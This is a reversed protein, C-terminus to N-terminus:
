GRESLVCGRRWLKPQRTGDLARGGEPEQCGVTCPALAGGPRLDGQMTRQRHKPCKCSSAGGLAACAIIVRLRQRRARACGGRQPHAERARVLEANWDGRLQQLRDRLAQHAGGSRRASQRAEVEERITTLREKNMAIRAALKDITAKHLSEDPRAPRKPPRLSAADGNAAPAPAPGADGDAEAPPATEPAEAAPPPDETAMACRETQARLDSRCHEPKPSSAKSICTKCTTQVQTLPPTIM